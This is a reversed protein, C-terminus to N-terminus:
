KVLAFVKYDTVSLGTAMKLNCSNTFSVSMFIIVGQFQPYVDDLFKELRQIRRSLMKIVTEKNLGEDEYNELISQLRMEKITNFCDQRVNEVKYLDALKLIKMVSRESKPETELFKVCQNFIGKVRYEDSLKFLHEVNNMTIEERKEVHLQKLFDLVKDAKKGPLSIENSSPEKFASIFTTKFVPSNMSLILRHVHFMEDEVVLIVDSDEWPESFCHKVKEERAEQVTETGEDNASSQKCSAMKFPNEFEDLYGELVEIRQTLFHQLRGKEVNVLQVTEALTKIKMGSLLENCDQRVKNLEYLEALALIEMVNEKTKPEEELIKMCSKFIHETVPYEDSLQLFQEVNEMTIEVEKKTYQPGYIKMLFDLMGDAKKGPLPIEISSAEKFESKFMARFVPLNLSLIQRHVHFKEDEVVLIVDVDRWPESFCHKVKEKGQDDQVTPEDSAGREVKGVTEEETVSSAM